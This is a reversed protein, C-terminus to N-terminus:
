DTIVGQWSTSDQNVYLVKNGRNSIKEKSLWFYIMLSITKYELSIVSPAKNHFHLINKSKLIHLIHAWFIWSRMKMFGALNGWKNKRSQIRNAKSKSIDWKLTHSCSKENQNSAYIAISFELGRMCLLWLFLLLFKTFIELVLCLKAM